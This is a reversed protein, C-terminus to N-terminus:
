CFDAEQELVVVVACTSFSNYLFNTRHDVLFVYMRYKLLFNYGLISLYLKENRFFQM